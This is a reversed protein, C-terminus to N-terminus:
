KSQLRYVGDWSEGPGVPPNIRFEECRKMYVLSPTLKQDPFREFQQAAVFKKRAAEWEMRRYLEIGADFLELLRKADETLEGKLCLLEYVKVPESKGMVTINDIFRAEVGDAVRRSRGEGDEYRHDLTAESVLISIGYQKAGAELRAALNVADGMMTYNMRTRSGMNGTVIEGTNIGIRMRMEHVIRPWKDGPAWEAAPLGKTNCEAGAQDRRWKERLGALGEQMKLAVKCARFAHDNMPLPAGFFAVIADGEYKDLTGREALLTDTMVTLYENLLEVLQHATLKESFTSFSQIDTFYATIIDSAGGLRPSTKTQYMTEILEPSIYQSFTSKLFKRAREETLVRLLTVTGFVTVNALILPSSRLIYNRLDFLLYGAVFTAAFTFLFLYGNLRVDLRGYILAMVICLLLLLVLDIREPSRVLQNGTVVTNFAHAAVNVGFMSGYPTVKVDHAMGAAYAGTFIMKHYYRDFNMRYLDQLLEAVRAESLRFGPEQVLGRAELWDPYVPILDKLSTGPEMAGTESMAAIDDLFMRYYVYRGEEPMDEDICRHVNEDSLDQYRAQCGRLVEDHREGCYAIFWPLLPADDYAPDMEGWEDLLPLPPLEEVEMVARYSVTPITFHTAEEKTFPDIFLAEERGAFNIPFSRPLHPSKRETGLVVRGERYFVVDILRSGATVAADYIERGDILELANDERQLLHVPYPPIQADAGAGPGRLDNVLFNYLNENYGAPRSPLRIKQRLGALDQGRHIRPQRHDDLEPLRAGELIVGLDDIRVRAPDAIGYYRMLLALVVSFYHRTEGARTRYTHYPLFSRVVEDPDPWANVTVPQARRMFEEMVPELSHYFAPEGAAAPLSYGEMIKETNEIRDLYPIDDRRDGVLFLDLYVNDHRGLERAFREDMATFARRVMALQEPAHNLQGVISSPVTEPLIFGIDFYVARPSFREISKLYRAHVDRYWPWEGFAGLSPADIAVLQVRDSVYRNKEGMALDGPHPERVYFFGDLLTREMPGLLVTGFAIYWFLLAVGAGLLAFGFTKKM